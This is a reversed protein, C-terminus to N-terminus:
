KWFKTAHPHMCYLATRMISSAVALVVVLLPLISCSNNNSTLTEVSYDGRSYLTSSLLPPRDARIVDRKQVTRTRARRKVQKRKLDLVYKMRCIYM